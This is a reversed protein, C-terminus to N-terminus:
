GGALKPPAKARFLAETEKASEKMQAIRRQNEAESRVPFTPGTPPHGKMARHRAIDRELEDLEAADVPSDTPNNM